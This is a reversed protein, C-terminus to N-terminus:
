IFWAFVFAVAYACIIGIVFEILMRKGPYTTLLLRDIDRPIMKMVTILTGFYFVKGSLTPPLIEKVNNYVIAWLVCQVLVALMIKGMTAGNKPLQRVSPHGEQAAYLKDVIPNFFLIAALVFWGVTAILIGPIM